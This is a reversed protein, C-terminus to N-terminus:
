INWALAWNYNIFGFLFFLFLIIATFIGALWDDMMIGLAGDINEVKGIIGPKLIDFFRFLFFALINFFPSIGAASTAILQGSFEDIVVESPDKSKTKSIYIKSSYYGIIGSFIGLLFTAHSGLYINTLFGICAAFVSSLTGSAFSVMGIPWVTSILRSVKFKFSEEKIM